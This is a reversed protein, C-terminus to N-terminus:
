FSLRAGLLFIKNEADTVAPAGRVGDEKAEVSTYEAILDLGPALTYNGGVAYGKDERDAANAISGEYENNFYHAGIRFAGIKYEAGFFYQKMDDNNGSSPLPTDAGNGSGFIYHGGVTFGAFSASLGINVLSVGDFSAGQATRADVASSGIYGVGGSVGFGAFNGTYRAALEYIDKARAIGDAESLRQCSTGLSGCELTGESKNFAFSGGFDFGFFSPSRYNIKTNDGTDFTFYTHTTGVMFDNIDGDVGGTAWGTIQGVALQNAIGENNGLQLVGLSESRLFLFAEDLDATTTQDRNSGRDFQIEIQAGYVIGNAATGEVLVDVEAEQSFDNSDLKVFRDEKQATKQDVNAYNFRMYGAIRVTPATQAMAESALAAMGIVATTGLLIKRMDM